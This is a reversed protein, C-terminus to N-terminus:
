EGYKAIIYAEIAASQGLTKGDETVFYPVTGFPSESSFFVILQFDPWKFFLLAVSEQRKSPKETPWTDREFRSDEFEINNAVLLLRIPEARGRFNFYVLKPKGM